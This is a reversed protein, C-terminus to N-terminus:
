SEKDGMKNKFKPFMPALLLLLSMVFVIAALIRSISWFSNSSPYTSKIASRTKVTGVSFDFEKELSYSNNQSIRLIAQYKGTDLNDTPIKIAPIELTSYSKVKGQNEPYPFIVAYVTKGEKKIKLDIQPNISMSGENEYIVRIKLYDGQNIDYSEPVLSADFATYPTASSSSPEFASSEPLMFLFLIALPIFNKRETKIKRALYSFLLFKYLNERVIRM